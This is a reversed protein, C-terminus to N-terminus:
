ELNEEKKPKAAARLMTQVLSSAFKVDMAALIEGSEKAGLQQLLESVLDIDLKQLQSAATEPEVNKYIKVLNATVAARTKERKEVLAELESTKLALTKLQAEIQTKMELLRQQQRAARAEAAKSAFARCYDVEQPPPSAHLNIGEAEALSQGTQSVFILWIIAPTLPARIAKM